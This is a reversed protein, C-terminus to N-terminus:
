SVSDRLGPKCSLWEHLEILFLRIFLLGTGYLSDVSVISSTWTSHFGTSTIEPNTGKAPSSKRQAKVPYGSDSIQSDQMSFYLDNLGFHASFICLVTTTPSSRSFRAHSFTVIRKQFLTSSDPARVTNM